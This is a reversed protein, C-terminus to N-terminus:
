GRVNMLKRGLLDWLDFVYTKQGRQIFLVNGKAGKVDGVLWKEEPYLQPREPINFYQDWLEYVEMERLGLSQTIARALRDVKQVGAGRDGKLNEVKTIFAGLDFNYAAKMAQYSKHAMEWNLYGEKGTLIVARDIGQLIIQREIAEYCGMGVLILNGYNGLYVVFEEEKFQELARGHCFPVVGSCRPVICWGEDAEYRVSCFECVGGGQEDPLEQFCGGCYRQESLELAVPGFIPVYAWDGYNSVVGIWPVYVDAVPRMLVEWCVFEVGDYWWKVSGDVAVAELPLWESWDETGM